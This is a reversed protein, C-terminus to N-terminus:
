GPLHLRWLVGAYKHCEYDVFWTTGAPGCALSAFNNPQAVEGGAKEIPRIDIPTAHSALWAGLLGAILCSRGM